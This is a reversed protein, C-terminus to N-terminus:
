RRPTEARAVVVFPVEAADEVDEQTADIRGPRLEADKAVARREFADGREVCKKGAM